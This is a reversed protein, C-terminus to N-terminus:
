SRGREVNTAKPKLHGGGHRSNPHYGRVAAEEFPRSLRTSWGKRVKKEVPEERRGENERTM